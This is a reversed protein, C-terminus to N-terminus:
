AGVLVYPPARLGTARTIFTGHLSELYISEQRKIDNEPLVLLKFVPEFFLTIVWPVNPHAWASNSSNPSQQVFHTTVCGTGCCCHESASNHRHECCDETIDSKMCLLGDAHHHHPIVPITLMIMSIFFLVHTIYRKKKM